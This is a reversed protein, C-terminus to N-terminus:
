NVPLLAMLDAFERANDGTTAVRVEVRRFFPNPTPTVSQSCRFVVGGQECDYRSEGVSVQARGFRLELLQNEATLIAYLKLNVDQANSTLAMAGRLAATLAVAIITLAVLVELLTFGRASAVRGRAGSSCSARM